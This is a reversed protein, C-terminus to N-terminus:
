LPATRLPLLAAAALAAICAFAVAGQGPLDFALGALPTGVLITLVGFSNVFAIAAGPAAPRARQASAFIAAFPFGASVGLVFAGLASVAYPAEAALLAAGAAIGLLSAGVLM